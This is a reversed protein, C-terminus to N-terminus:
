FKRSYIILLYKIKYSNIVLYQNDEHLKIELHQQETPYDLVKSFKINKAKLKESINSDFFIHRNLQSDIM